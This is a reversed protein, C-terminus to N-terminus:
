SRALVLSSPSPSTATTVPMLSPAQWRSLMPQSHATPIPQDSSEQCRQFPLARLSALWALSPACLFLELYTNAAPECCHVQLSHVAAVTPAAGVTLGSWCKAKCVCSRVTLFLASMERWPYEGDELTGLYHVKVTDGKEAKVNCNEAKRQVATLAQPQHKPRSLATGPQGQKPM